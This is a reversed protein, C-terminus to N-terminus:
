YGAINRTVANAGITLLYKNYESEFHADCFHVLMKIDDLAKKCLSETIPQLSLKPRDCNHICDHRRQCIGDIRVVLKSAAAKRANNLNQGQFARFVPKSVGVLRQPANHDKILSDITGAEFLKNGRSLFPNLLQKIKSISLVNDKETLGRAALRWRWNKKM